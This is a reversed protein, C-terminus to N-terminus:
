AGQRTTVFGRLGSDDWGRDGFLQDDTLRSVGGSRGPAFLAALEDHSLWAGNRNEIIRAAQDLATVIARFRQAAAEDNADAVYTHLEEVGHSPAEGVERMRVETSGPALTAFLPGPERTAGATEFEVPAYRWSGNEDQVRRYAAMLAPKDVSVNVLHPQEWQVSWKDPLVWVGGAGVLMAAALALSLRHRRAFVRVRRSVTALRLAAAPIEGELFLELDRRFAAASAYRRSPDNELAKLICAELGPDISRDIERPRRYRADRVARMTEIPTTTAFCRQLLLLEYLVLAAQYIDTHIGAGAGGGWQEPASYQATGFMDGTMKGALSGAQFSVGFDLLVPWGGGVLRVNGPKLDRHVVGVAHTAELTYLLEVFIKTAAIAWSESGDVVPTRGAAVPGVISLVDGGTLRSAGNRRRDQLVQIVDDLAMGPVLEMVLFRHEGERGTDLIRVVGPHALKALLRGEREVLHDLDVAATAALNLVKIAVEHDLKRDLARWVQGMGGSGISAILEYREALVIQPKLRLPLNRDAFSLQDLLDVFQDRRETPLRVLYDKLAPDSGSEQALLWSALVEEMLTPPRFVGKAPGTLAPEHDRM